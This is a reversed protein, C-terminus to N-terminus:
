VTLKAGAKFRGVIALIAGVVTVINGAITDTEAETWPVSVGVQSLVGGVVTLGVGWVTKSKWFPKEFSTLATEFM